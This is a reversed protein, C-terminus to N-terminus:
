PSTKKNVDGVKIVDLGNLSQYGVVFRHYATQDVLGYTHKVMSPKALCTISPITIKPPASSSSALRAQMSFRKLHTQSSVLSFSYPLKMVIVLALASRMTVGKILEIAAMPPSVSNIKVPKQSRYTIKPLGNLSISKAM